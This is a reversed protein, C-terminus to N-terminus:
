ECLFISPYFHVIAEGFTSRDALTSAVSAPFTIIKLDIVHNM